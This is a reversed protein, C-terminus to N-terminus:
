ATGCPTFGIVAYESINRGSSSVLSIVGSSISYRLVQNPDGRSTCNVTAHNRRKEENLHKDVTLQRGLSFSLQEVRQNQHRAARGLPYQLESPGPLNVSYMVSLYKYANQM